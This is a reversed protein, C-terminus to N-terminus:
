LSFSRGVRYYMVFFVLLGFRVKDVFAVAFQVEVGGNEDNVKESAPCVYPSRVVGSLADDLQELDATAQIIGDPDCFRKTRSRCLTTL